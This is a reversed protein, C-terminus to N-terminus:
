AVQGDGGNFARRLIHVNMSVLGTSVAYYKIGGRGRRLRPGRQALM